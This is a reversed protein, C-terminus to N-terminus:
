YAKRLMHFHCGGFMQMHIFLNTFNVCTEFFMAACPRFTTSITCKRGKAPVGDCTKTGKGEYKPVLYYPKYKYEQKVKSGLWKEIQFGGQTFPPWSSKVELCLVVDLSIDFSNVNITLTVAPCGKKKRNIEVGSLLCSM